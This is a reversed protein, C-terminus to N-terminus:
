IQSEIPLLRMFGVGLRKWFDTYPEQNFIQKEGDVIGHWLLQESGNQEKHLELRFAVKDIQRDFGDAIHGAIPASKLVVGIETNQVVSRPDLNLSGIFATERDLVFCKAHLSSKSRDIVGKKIAKREERSLNHNLEYLAVGMRLLAHRYRAYGAHVIGVDTSALSNTLIKVQVGRDRLQKFFAVGSKGPVFYPSFIILEQQIDAMYPALQESLHYKTEATDHILKQPDDAVVNGVGWHYTVRGQRIRNALDSDRLHQLYESDVQGAIFDDFIHKRQTIEAPTPPNEALTSIPYSLASNWYQDFSASVQGAVPGVAMVDLDVFAMQPDAEFYEDGINRGGLITAQNDVTFSKNHARRTQKGFGSVYQRIRGTNRAFPNFIRVEINPHNDLIATGVDRGQQDIDDVLLRVRVGREAAKYLQDVFLSGVVDDHIMYYQTDISREAQQTLLVRAVFADLGNGLLLYGSEGPHMQMETQVRQGIRTDHTDPYATSAKRQVNEPLTACGVLVGIVAVMITWRTSRMRDRKNAIGKRLRNM